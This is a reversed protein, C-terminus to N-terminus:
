KLLNLEKFTGSSKMQVFGVYKRKATGCKPWVCHDLLMLLFYTDPLCLSWALMRPGTKERTVTGVVDLM